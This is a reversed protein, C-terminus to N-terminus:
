PAWEEVDVDVPLSSWEPRTRLLARLRVNHAEVDDIRERLAWFALALVWVIGLALITLGLWLM